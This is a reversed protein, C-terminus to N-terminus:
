CNGTRCEIESIVVFFLWHSPNSFVYVNVVFVRNLTRAKRLIYEFHFMILHFPMVVLSIGSLMGYRIGARLIIWKSELFLTLNIILHSTYRFSWRLIVYIKDSITFARSM